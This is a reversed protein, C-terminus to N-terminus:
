DQVLILKKPNIANLVIANYITIERTKKNIDKVIIFQFFKNIIIEDDDIGNNIIKTNIHVKIKM